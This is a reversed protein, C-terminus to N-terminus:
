ASASPVPAGDGHGDGPVAGHGRDAGLVQIRTAAFTGDASRTGEAILVQGATLQGLSGTTGNVTTAAGTTITQPGGPTAVTIRSGDLATVRGVLRATTLDGRGGGGGGFGDGFGDGLRRDDHGAAVPSMGGGDQRDVRGLVYGTGLFLMAAAVGAAVLVPIPLRRGGGAAAAGGPPVTGTGGPSPASSGRPFPAPGPGVDDSLEATPGGGPVAWDPAVPSPDANQQRSGDPQPDPQDSMSPVSRHGCQQRM